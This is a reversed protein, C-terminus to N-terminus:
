CGRQNRQDKKKKKQVKKRAMSGLMHSRLAGVLSQVQAGQM